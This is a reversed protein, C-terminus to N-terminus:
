KEMDESMFITGEIQLAQIVKTGYIEEHSSSSPTEKLVKWANPALIPGNNHSKIEDLACNILRLIRKRKQEPLRGAAEVEISFLAKLLIKWKEENFIETQLKEPINELLFTLDNIGRIAHQIIRTNYESTNYGKKDPALIYKKMPDTVIVM